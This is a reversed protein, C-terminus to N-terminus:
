KKGYKSIWFEEEDEKKSKQNFYDVIFCLIVPIIVSLIAFRYKDGVNIVYEYRFLKLPLINFAHALLQEIITLIIFIRIPIRFKYEGTSNKTTKLIYRNIVEAVAGENNTGKTIYGAEDKLPQIANRMAVGLGAAKIMSLDNYSDGMAITANVDIGLDDALEALAEGKTAGKGTFELFTPSSFFCNMDKLKPLLQKQIKVLIENPGNLLIKSIDGDYNKISEVMVYDAKLTDIYKQVRETIREIIMKDNRYIQIDVDNKEAMDYILEASRSSFLREKILEPPFGKYVAGGNLCIIYCSEKDIDLQAAIHKVGFVSRGTCIVIKVGHEYAKRIADLNERSISLDSSLLTNDLDLFLMKYEM